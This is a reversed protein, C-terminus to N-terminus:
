RIFVVMVALFVIMTLTGVIAAPAWRMRQAVAVALPILVLYWALAVIQYGFGFVRWFGPRASIEMWEKQTLTGTLFLATLITEPVWTVLMPVSFAFGLLALIDEYSGSGGFPKSLLHGVGGALVWGMAVVPIAFFIEWFYYDEAPIAVWPPVWIAARVVALGIVTLTYLGGIVFVAKAALTLRRPDDRLGAFSVRPKVITGAFYAWFSPM